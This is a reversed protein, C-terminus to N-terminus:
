KVKASQKLGGRVDLVVASEPLRGIGIGSGAGEFEADLGGERCCRAHSQNWM